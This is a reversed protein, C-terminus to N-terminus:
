SVLTQAQVVVELLNTRLKVPAADNIVFKFIIRKLPGSKEGLGYGNRSLCPIMVVPSLPALLKLHPHARAREWSEGRLELALVVEPWPGSICDRGFADPALALDLDGPGRPQSARRASAGALAAGLRPAM